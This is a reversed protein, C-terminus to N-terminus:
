KKVKIESEVMLQLDKMLNLKSILKQFNSIVDSLSKSKLNIKLRFLKEWVAEDVKVLKERKKKKMKKPKQHIKRHHKECLFIVKLPEKYNPHHKIRALEKCKPYQCIQGEPMDIENNTLNWVKRKERDEEM